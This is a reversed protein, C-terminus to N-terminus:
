TRLTYGAPKEAQWNLAQGADILRTPPQGKRKSGPLDVIELQLRSARRAWPLASQHDRAPMLLTEEVARSPRHAGSAQAEVM